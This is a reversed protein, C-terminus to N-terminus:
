ELRGALGARGSWVEIDEERRYGNPKQRQFEHTLISSNNACAQRALDIRGAM